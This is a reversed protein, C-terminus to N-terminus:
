TRQRLTIPIVEFSLTLTQSMQHFTEFKKPCGKMYKYKLEVNRAATKLMAVTVHFQKTLLICGLSIEGGFGAIAVGDLGAIAVGDFGSIAAIVM